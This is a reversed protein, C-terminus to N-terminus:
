SMNKPLNAAQALDAMPKFEWIFDLTDQADKRFDMFYDEHLKEAKKLLSTVKRVVYPALTDSRRPPFKLLMDRHTRFATALMFFNLIVDGPKDKTADVHETIRGSWHRLDLLLYGPTQYDTAAKTLYDSISNRLESARSDTTESGELLEFVLRRVLKEDKAVLRLLLKDKEAVPMRSIAAQLQDDLKKM